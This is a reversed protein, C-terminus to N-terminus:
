STLTYSLWNLIFRAHTYKHFRVYPPHHRVQRAVGLNDGEVKKLSVCHNVISTLIGTLGGDVMAHRSEEFTSLILAIQSLMPRTEANAPDLTKLLSLLQVVVYPRV